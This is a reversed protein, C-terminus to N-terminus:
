NAPTAPLLKTGYLNVVGGEAPVTVKSNAGGYAGEGAIKHGDAYFDTTDADGVGILFEYEGANLSDKSITATFTVNDAGMVMVVDGWGAIMSGKLKVIKGTMDADFKITFVVDAAVSSAEQIPAEIAAEFLAVESDDYGEVTVSANGSGGNAGYEKGGWTSGTYENEHYFVLKFEYDNPLIDAVLTASKRDSSITMKISDGDSSWGNFAGPCLVIADTPLAETFEVKLTKTGALSLICTYVGNGTGDDNKGEVMDAKSIDLGKVAIGDSPVAESVTDALDVYSNNDRKIIKVSLNSGGASVEIRAMVKSDAPAGLITPDAFYQDWIGLDEDKDNK